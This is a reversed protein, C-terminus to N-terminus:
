ERHGQQWRGSTVVLGLVARVVTDLVLSLARAVSDFGLSLARAVIGFM